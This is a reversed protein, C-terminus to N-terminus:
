EEGSENNTQLDTPIFERNVNGCASCEFVPIPMIAEQGNPSYIPSVRRVLFSQIFTKNGCASCLVESTEDLSVNVETQDKM